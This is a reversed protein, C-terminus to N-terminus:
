IRGFNFNEALGCSCSITLSNAPLKLRAAPLKATRLQLENRM